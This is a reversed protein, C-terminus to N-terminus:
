SKSNIIKHNTRTIIITVLFILFAIGFVTYLIFPRSPTAASATATTTGAERDVRINYTLTFPKFTNDLLPQGTLKVIYLGREPFTYMFVASNASAENSSQSLSQSFIEVDSKLITVKCNCQDTKFTGNTDKFDFFFQSNEGAVPDDDPTIHVVAGISGDTKLIHASVPFVVCFLVVIIGFIINTTKFLSM